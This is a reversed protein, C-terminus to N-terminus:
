RNYVGGVQAGNEEGGVSKEWLRETPRDVLARLAKIEDFSSKCCGGIVVGKWVGMAEAEHAVELLRDAWVDPGMERHTWERKVVDYTAGGDPYLILWLPHRQAHHTVAGSLAGVLAPLLTPHTCNIGIGDPKAALCRTDIPLAALPALEGMLAEAVQRMEVTKGNADRQGIHGNPYASSIWFPKSNSKSKGHMEMECNLAGVARRIARIERLVPITEFALCTIRSWTAEDSAYVRLRDLHFTTLAAEYSCEDTRPAYNTASSSPDFGAPGYPPPYLGDYEQGPSLTAGYPGLALAVKPKQIPQPSPVTSPHQPLAHISSFSSCSSMTSVSSAPTFPAKHPCPIDAALSVARRMLARADDESHGQEVLAPLTMQYTATEIIDAGVLAFRAHVNALAAPDRAVLESGWMSGSVDHGIAELTTGMGGDLILVPMM